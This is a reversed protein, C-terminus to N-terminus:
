ASSSVFCKECRPRLHEEIGRWSRSEESDFVTGINNCMSCRVLCDSMNIIQGKVHKFECEVWGEALSKKYADKKAQRKSITL